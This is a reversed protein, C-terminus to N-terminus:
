QFSKACCGDCGHVAEYTRGTLEWYDFQDPDPHGVGHECVREWLFRDARFIMPWGEMTHHTQRHVICRRGECATDSHVNSMPIGHVMMYTESM